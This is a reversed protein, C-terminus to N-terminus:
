SEEGIATRFYEGIQQDNRLTKLGYLRLVRVHGPKIGLRKSIEEDSLGGFFRLLIVQRKRQDPLRSIAEVLLQLREEELMRTLTGTQAASVEPIAPEDLPETGSAPRERKAADRLKFLAFSLFTVPNRCRDIQRYIIELARQTADEAFDPWQRRAANYLYRFLDTYAQERLDLHESQRCAEYLAITYQQLAQKELSPAAGEAPTVRLMLTALQDESLLGWAHKAILARAAARYAAAGPPDTHM